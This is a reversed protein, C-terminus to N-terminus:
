KYYKNLLEKIEPIKILEQVFYDMNEVADKKRINLIEDYDINLINCFERGTLIQDQTFVNKMGEQIIKKDDQNFCCIYFKASFPIQSGFEKTFTELHEKEGQTKKTDFTDGDKLEIVKCIRQKQVQFILLDPEIGKKSVPDFVTFSSKKLTKKNCVYVGDEINGIEADKIFLDLDTVNNTRGLILRELESGNSIVTAQVKSLLTGLPENNFVRTYGSNGDKRGKLNCIKM